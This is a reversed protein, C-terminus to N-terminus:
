AEEDTSKAPQNDDDSEVRKENAYQFSSSAGFVKIPEVDKMYPIPPPVGQISSESSGSTTFVKVLPNLHKVPIPITVDVDSSSHSSEQIMQTKQRRFGKAPNMRTEQSSDPVPLSNCLFLLSHHLGRVMGTGNLKM